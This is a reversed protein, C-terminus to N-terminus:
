SAAANKPPLAHDTIMPVAGSMGIQRARALAAQREELSRQRLKADVSQSVGFKGDTPCNYFGSLTGEPRLLEINLRCIPCEVVANERYAPFTATFALPYISTGPLLTSAPWFGNPM